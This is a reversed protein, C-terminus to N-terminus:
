VMDAVARVQGDGVMELTSGTKMGQDTKALHAKEPIATSAQSELDAWDKGHSDGQPQYYSLSSPMASPM